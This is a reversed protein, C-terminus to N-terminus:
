SLTYRARPSDATASYRAAPSDSVATYRARPSDATLVRRAQPSDSVLAHRARPSDASGGARVVVPANVEPPLIGAPIYATVENGSALRVRAVLRSGVEHVGTCVGQSHSGATVPPRAATESDHRQEAALQGLRRM